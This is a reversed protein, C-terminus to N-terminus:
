GWVSYGALAAYFPVRCLTPRVILERGLARESDLEHIVLAFLSPTQRPTLPSIEGIPGLELKQSSGLRVWHLWAWHASALPFWRPQQLLNERGHISAVSCKLLDHGVCRVLPGLSGSRDNTYIGGGHGAGAVGLVTKGVQAENRDLRQHRVLLVVLM